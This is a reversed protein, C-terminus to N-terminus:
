SHSCPIRRSSHTNDKILKSEFPSSQSLFDPVLLIFVCRFTKMREVVNLMVHVELADERESVAVKRNLFEQQKCGCLECLTTTLIIILFYLLFLLLLAIETVPRSLRYPQSINLIGCQKSLRSVSPPLTTLV